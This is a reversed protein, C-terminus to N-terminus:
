QSWFMVRFGTETDCYLEMRAPGKDADAQEAGEQVHEVERAREEHERDIVSHQRAATQGREDGERQQAEYDGVRPRVQEVMFARVRERWETEVPGLSFDM